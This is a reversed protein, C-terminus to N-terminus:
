NRISGLLFSTASVEDSADEHTSGPRQALLEECKDIILEMDANLPLNERNEAIGDRLAAICETLRDAILADLGAVFRILYHDPPLSERIPRWSTRAADAEGSTLEFFGLQFRALHFGPAIDVARSLASHAEIFRRLEIMLSGALFHLRADDPFDGLAHEIAALGAQADEAAKSVIDELREDSCHTAPPKTM